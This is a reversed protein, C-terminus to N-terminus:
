RRRRGFQDRQRLKEVNGDRGREVGLTRDGVIMPEGDASIHPQQLFDHDNLGWGIQETMEFDPEFLSKQFGYSPHTVRRNWFGAEFAVASLTAYGHESLVRPFGVYHNGPYRFAVAGRPQGLDVANPRDQIDPATELIEMVRTFGTYGQQWLRVFNALRQVPDVLVAVCLLFTLMDGVSLRAQVVRVAGIVIVGVTLLQPFTTTGLSFGPIDNSTSSKPSEPLPEPTTVANTSQISLM